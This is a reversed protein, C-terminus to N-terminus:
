ALGERHMVARIAEALREPTRSSLYFTGGRSSGKRTGGSRTIVAVGSRLFPVTFAQPRHGHADRLWGFRWGWGGFTWLSYREVAAAEIDMTRLTRGFPGFRFRVREADVEVTLKSGLMVLGLLMASALLLVAVTAVGGAGSLSPDRMAATAGLLPALALLAMGILLWRPSPTTERYPLDPNATLM